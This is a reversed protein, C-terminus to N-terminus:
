TVNRSVWEQIEDHIEAKSADLRVAGGHALIQNEILRAIERTRMILFLEARLELCLGHVAYLNKLDTQCWMGGIERLVYSNIRDAGGIESVNRIDGLHSLDWGSRVANTVKTIVHDRKKLAASLLQTHGRIRENIRVRAVLYAAERARLIDAWVKKCNCAERLTLRGMEKVSAAAAYKAERATVMEIRATFGDYLANNELIKKNRAPTAKKEFVVPTEIGWYIQLVEGVPGFIKDTVSQFEANVRTFLDRMLPGHSVKKHVYNGTQLTIWKTAAKLSLKEAVDYEDPTKWEVAFDRMWHIMRAITASVNKLMYYDLDISMKAAVAVDLLEMREGITLNRKRGRVDYTYKYGAPVIYLFRDMPVLPQGREQMRKAFKQVSVNQKNPKYQASKAFDALKHAGTYLSTIHRTALATPLDYNNPDCMDWLMQSSANFVIRSVGKKVQDLGKVFLSKPEANYIHEHPRGGYKKKGLLVTPYLIEEYSMNLFHTGNFEILMANVARKLEEILRMNRLVIDRMYVDKTIAGTYYSIDLDRMIAEPPEVYASDTDGYKVRWWIGTVFKIVQLLLVQGYSTTGAALTLVMIPSIVNGAEGYFTNMTVKASKQKSEYYNNMFCVSDYEERYRAFDEPSMAEIQEKRKKLPKQLEKILNRMRFREDLITPFVGFRARVDAAQDVCRKEDDAGSYTHRVYWAVHQRGDCKIDVRHFKLDPRDRMLQVVRERDEIRMEPSLNRDRIISPYLSAFDLAGTPYDHESRFWRQLVPHLTNLVDEPVAKIGHRQIVAVAPATDIDALWEAYRPNGRKAEARCEAFSARAKHVGKIPPVVLAGEYKGQGTHAPPIMNIRLGRQNAVAAVLNRVKMGDARLLSDNMSVYHDQGICRRDRIFVIKQVLDACKAADIQCYEGVISSLTMLEDWQPFIWRAVRVRAAYPAGPAAVVWIRSVLSEIAFMVRIPMDVKLGMKYKGLFFNLSYKEPNNHVVRLQTMMDICTYGPFGLTAGTCSMEASLKRVYKQYYFYETASSPGSWPEGRRWKELVPISMTSELYPLLGLQHARKTLFDYDYNSDNFGVLYDPKMLGFVYAWAQILERESDVLVTVRNPRHAMPMTTFTYMALYGAPKAYKYDGSSPDGSPILEADHWSFNLSIDFQAATGSEPRPVDDNRGSDKTEIDWTAIMTRDLKLQEDATIDGTYMRWDGVDVMVCRRTNYWDHAQVRYRAFTCWTSTSTRYDRTVVNYYSTADNHYTRYKGAFYQIAKKRVWTTYFSLRIFEARDEFAEMTEGNVVESSHLKLDQARCAATVEDRFAGGSVGKPVRIEFYPHIGSIIVTTKEGSRFIGYMVLKYVNRAYKDTSLRGNKDEPLTTEQIATPLFDLPHGADIVDNVTRVLDPNLFNLRRPLNKIDKFSIIQGEFRHM